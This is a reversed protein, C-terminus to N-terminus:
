RANREHTGNVLEGELLTTTGTTPDKRAVVTKSASPMIEGTKSEPASVIVQFGLGPLVSLARRTYQSDAKILAEDLFVTAYSPETANDNALLYLLAAGYAFSTLEQLYGGSGGGTSNIHEIDGNSYEVAGIFRSRRRPDLNADGHGNPAYEDFSEKIFEVVNACQEFLKKCREVDRSDSERFANIRAIQSSLATSFKAEPPRVHVEISLKGHQAGFPYHALLRNIKGMQETIKKQDARITAQLQVFDNLMKELSNFYETSAAEQGIVGPELEALEREFFQADNVSASIRDDNPAYQDIYSQMTTECSKRRADRQAALQTVTKGVAQAVSMRLVGVQQMDVRDEAKVHTGSAKASKDDIGLIVGVRQSGRQASAGFYAVYSTELLENCVDNMPVAHVGDATTSADDHESLWRQAAQLARQASQAETKAGWARSNAEELQRKRIDLDAKLQALEPNNALEDRDARLQTIRDEVAQADIDAWATDQLAQALDHKAQLKAVDNDFADRAAIAQNLREKAAAIKVKLENLYTETVFGIVPKMGKTGHSGRKGSKIQGDRQVQREASADDIADVCLADSADSAVRARLWGIFPSDENFTLKGSLWDRESSDHDGDFIADTDVFQWNRRPMQERPIRSINQAFGQEHRKDVLITPALSAYTVNMAVRWEEDEVDMLEAAYPLEEPQLGTVQAMLARADAMERTIRSRSRQKREYDDNLEALEDEYIKCTNLLEFQHDSRTRADAAYEKDFQEYQACIENWQTQNEPMSQDARNFREVLKECRKLVREYERQADALKDELKRIEDGGHGRMQNELSSIEDNLQVVKEQASQLAAENEQAWARYQPLVDAVDASIRTDLWQARREDSGVQMPDIARLQSVGREAEQYEAAEDNITQLLEVRRRTREMSMFNNRYREYDDIAARGMSLARPENLVGKRFIDDLQSPADSAQMRHLLRCAAETLGFRKWVDEHFRNAYQYVTIGPYVQKLLPISFKEERYADMLRPDIPEARMAYLKIMNEPTADPPLYMFKAISLHGSNATDIYDDVIAGWVAYPEGDENVGRLYVPEDHGRDNRIGRQGRVYTYDSRDSRGANSAKNFAAGTPYLLSVQADVLTSKGSESQGTLLTVTGDFATSPEFVHYGEYSGWNVLQRRQLVWHPALLEIPAYLDQSAQSVQATSSQATM